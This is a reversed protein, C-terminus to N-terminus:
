CEFGMEVHMVGSLKSRYSRDTQTVSATKSLDFSEGPTTSRQAKLAVFDAVSFRSKAGDNPVCGRAPTSQRFSCETSAVVRAVTSGSLM